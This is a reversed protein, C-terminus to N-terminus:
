MAVRARERLAEEEAPEAEAEVDVRMREPEPLRAREPRPTQAERILALVKAATEPDLNDVEFSVRVPNDDYAPSVYLRSVPLDSSTLYVREGTKRSGHSQVRQGLLAALRTGVMGAEDTQGNAVAVEELAVAYMVLYAPLLRNVVDRAIAKPDRTAAVRISWTSAAPDKTIPYSWSRRGPLREVPWYRNPTSYRQGDAYDPWIPSLVVKGDGWSRDGMIVHFGAGDERVVRAWGHEREPPLARYGPLLSALAGALAVSHAQHEEWTTM